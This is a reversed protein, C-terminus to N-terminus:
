PAAIRRAARGTSFPLLRMAEGSRTTASRGRIRKQIVAPRDRVQDGGEHPLEPEPAAHELRRAAHKLRNPDGPLDEAALRDGVPERRPASKECAFKTRSSSLGAAAATGSACCPNGGDHIERVSRSSAGGGWGASAERRKARPGKRSTAGPRIEPRGGGMRNVVLPGGPRARRTCRARRGRRCSQCSCTQRCRDPSRAAGAASPATRAPSGRGGRASRSSRAADDECEQPMGLRLAAAARQRPVRPECRHLREEPVHRHV